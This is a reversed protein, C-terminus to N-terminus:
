DYHNLIEQITESEGVLMEPAIFWGSFRENTIIVGALEELMTEPVTDYPCSTNQYSSFGKETILVWGSAELQEKTKFRGKLNKM